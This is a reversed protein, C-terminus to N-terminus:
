QLYFWQTKGAMPGEVAWQGNSGAREAIQHALHARPAAVPPPVIGPRHNTTHEAPLFQGDTLPLYPSVSDTGPRRLAPTM